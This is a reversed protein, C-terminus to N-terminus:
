RHDERVKEAAARLVMETWDKITMGTMAAAIRAQQHVDPAVWIATRPVSM